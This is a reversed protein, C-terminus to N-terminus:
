LADSVVAYGLVEFRKLFRFKKSDLLEQAHAFGVVTCTICNQMFRKQTLRKACVDLTCLLSSRVCFGQFAELFATKGLGLTVACARIGASHINCLSLGYGLTVHHRHVVKIFRLDRDVIKSIRM